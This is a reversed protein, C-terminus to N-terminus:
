TMKKVAMAAIGALAAKAMPNGLLGGMDPGGQQKRQQRRQGQGQGRQGQGQRRQGQGQRRQGARGGTALQAFMGPQERHMRGAMQAMFRPDHEFRDDIGDQDLDPFGMEQQRAQQRLYQALQRREQPSMRQFAEYASEEYQEPPLHQTVEQYRDIAEEDGIGQYPPGQEYRQVFDQMQQRQPGALLNELMGM